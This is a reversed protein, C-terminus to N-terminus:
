IWERGPHRALIPWVDTVVGEKVVHYVDYLNATTPGYGPLLSVREGIDPLRDDGSAIVGIHEEHIFAISGEPGVLKPEPEPSVAKQGTDLVALDESRSIVTGIVTMATEFEPVLRGHFGDMVMYSGAQTETLPPGTASAFYTGTGGGSVIECTLGHSELKEVARALREMSAHTERGRAHRDVISMCHGEYGMLGRFRLSGSEGVAEALPALTEVDRVGSRGMGIDYEVVINLITGQAAAAENLERVNRADDVAVIVTGEGALRAVVGVKMDGVVQNAILVNSIGARLMVAAETVTATAVGHAGGEEIQLRAADISKHVKVHPRLGVSSGALFESMRRLNRRAADLDIVLAPTPLDGPPKGIDALYPEAIM